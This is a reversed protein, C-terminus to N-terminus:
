GGKLAARATVCARSEVCEEGDCWCLVGGFQDLPIAQMELAERLREVEAVLAPVDAASANAESWWGTKVKAARAKIEDLNM